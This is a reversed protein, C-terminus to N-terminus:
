DLSIKWSVTVNSFLHDQFNELGKKRLVSVLVLVDSNLVLVQVNLVLVLVLVQVKFVLVLVESVPRSVTELRSRTELGLMVSIVCTLIYGLRSSITHMTFVAFQWYTLTFM